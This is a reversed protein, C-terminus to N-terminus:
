APPPPSPAHYPQGCFPCFRFTLSVLKEGCGACCNQLSTGCLFCFQSRGDTWIPDPTTGPQWCQPCFKLSPGLADTQGRVVAELYDVPVQLAVSLRSLTHRNLSRTQGREIKGLSQLHIEAKQAVMQRSLGLAQRQRTVYDALSEQAKPLQRTDLTSM